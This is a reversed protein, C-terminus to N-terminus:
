GENKAPSTQVFPSPSAVQDVEAFELCTTIPDRHRTGWDDSSGAGHVSVATRPRQAASRDFAPAISAVVRRVIPLRDLDLFPQPPQGSTMRHPENFYFDDHTRDRCLTIAYSFPQGTRGARGVRQQYNFREPPMNAMMVSRLTGIDVGVEMTTTVSLVDIGHTPETEAPPNLTAGKFQRQRARQTSLPKTAHARPRPPLRHKGAM